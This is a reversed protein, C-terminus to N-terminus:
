AYGKSTTAFRSLRNPNVFLENKPPNPRLKAQEVLLVQISYLFNSFQQILILFNLWRVLLWRIWRNSELIM